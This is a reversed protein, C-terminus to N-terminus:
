FWDYIKEPLGLQSGLKTLYKFNDRTKTMATVSKLLDQTLSLKQWETDEDEYKKTVIFLQYDKSDFIKNLYKATLSDNETKCVFDFKIDRDIIKNIFDNNGKKSLDKKELNYFSYNGIKVFTKKNIFNVKSYLTKFDM